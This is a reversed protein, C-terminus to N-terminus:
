GPWVQWRRKWSKATRWLQPNWTSRQKIFQM